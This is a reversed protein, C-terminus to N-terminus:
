SQKAFYFCFVGGTTSQRSISIQTASTWTVTTQNNYSSSGQYVKPIAVSDGVKELYYIEGEYPTPIQMLYNAKLDASAIWTPIIVIFDTGTPVTQTSSAADYEAM